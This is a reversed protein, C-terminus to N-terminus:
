LQELGCWLCVKGRQIQFAAIQGIQAQKQNWFHFLTKLISEQM